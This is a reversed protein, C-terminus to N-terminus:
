LNNLKKGREVIKIARAVQKEFVENAHLADDFDKYLVELEVGDSASFSTFGLTEGDETLLEGSIGRTFQLKKKQSGRSETSKAQSNNGSSQPLIVRSAM